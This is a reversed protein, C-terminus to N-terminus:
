KTFILQQRNNKREQYSIISVSAILIIGIFLDNLSTSLGLFVLTSKFIQIIAVGLVAGLITGEGGTLRIGGIVVAAIVMLETGVLSVPNILDIESFYVIGMIGSLLGMYTYVFIKTKLINIGARLASEESNGIAFISRGLMTKYLIFWTIILIALAIVFFLPIGYSASGNTITFLKAKGFKFLSQPKDAVSISSTGIFTTMFGYFVSSTGLTVIFTSLRFFHIILANILGLFCGILASLLLAFYINDIGLSIMLRISSYGSVVAIATFSVDIGGSILVVLVGSALILTGSSTRLLDFLTNMSLFNKSVISVIIIYVALISILYKEMQKLKRFRRNM